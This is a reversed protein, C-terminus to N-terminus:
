YEWVRTITFGFMLDTVGHTWDNNNYMYIDQPIIGSATTIYIQFAHTVTRAEYGFAFNPKAFNEFNKQESISKIKLPIDYQFLFSSQTSFKLRGNFGVGIVDHDKDENV